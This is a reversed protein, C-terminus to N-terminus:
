GPSGNSLKEIQGLARYLEPLNHAAARARLPEDAENRKRETDPAFTQNADKSYLASAMAIRSREDDNPAIGFHPLLREVFAGPLGAYDCLLLDARQSGALGGAAIAGIVWSAFDDDSVRDAGRLGYWHLQVGGRIVHLGARRRQSVLVEIPDRFLFVSPTGPFLAAVKNLSISHWADLKLFRRRANGTRDRLLAGVMGRVHDASLDGNLHLGIVPDLAPSEAIVECNDLERLMQGVLTSGCRSMHFVIGDPACEGALPLVADLPTSCRLILNIPHSRAKAISHDFFPETLAAFAFHQWELRLGTLDQYLQVPLWQRPPAASPMWIPPQNAHEVAHDLIENWQDISGTVSALANALSVPDNCAALRRQLVEDAAIQMIAAGLLEKDM